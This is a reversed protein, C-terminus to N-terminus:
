PGARGERHHLRLRTLVPSCYQSQALRYGPDCRRPHKRHLRLRRLARHWVDPFNACQEGAVVRFTRMRVTLSSAGRRSASSQQRSLRLGYLIGPEMNQKPRANREISMKQLRVMKAFAWPSSGETSLVIRGTIRPRVAATEEMFASAVSAARRMKCAPPFANSAATAPWAASASVSKGIFPTPLSASIRM